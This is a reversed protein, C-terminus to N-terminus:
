LGGMMQGCMLDGSSCSDTQLRTSPHDRVSHFVCSLASTTVQRDPAQQLPVLIQTRDGSDIYLLWAHHCMNTIEARLYHLCNPGQQNSSLWGLRIVPGRPWHLGEKLLCPLHCRLLFSAPLKRRAKHAHVRVYACECVHMHVFLYTHAHLCVCLYSFPEM